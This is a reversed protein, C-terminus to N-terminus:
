PKMVIVDRSRSQPTVKSKVLEGNKVTGEVTTRYPADLKLDVDWSDARLICLVPAGNEEVWVKLGLDGNGLSMWGSYDESATDWAVNYRDVSTM